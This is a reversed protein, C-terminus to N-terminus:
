NLYETSPFYVYNSSLPYLENKDIIKNDVFVPRFIIKKIEKIDVKIESINNEIADLRVLAKEAASIRERDKELIASNVAVSDGLYKVTGIFIGVSILTAIAWAANKDIIKSLLDSMVKGKKGQHHEVVVNM